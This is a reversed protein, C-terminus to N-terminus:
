VVQTFSSPFGLAYSAFYSFFKAIFGNFHAVFVAYSM